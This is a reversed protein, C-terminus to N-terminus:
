LLMLLLLVVAVLVVVVSVVRRGTQSRTVISTYIPQPGRRRM